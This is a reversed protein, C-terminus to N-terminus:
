DPTGCSLINAVVATTSFSPIRKVVHVRAGVALAASLEGPYADVSEEGIVYVNPRLNVICDDAATDDYVFTYGVCRFAAILEARHEQRIIPREAGKIARVSDDSNIGVILVDGQKRAEELFYLHGIHLIDFCGTGLVVTLDALQSSLRELDKISTLSILPM